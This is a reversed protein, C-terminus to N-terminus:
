EGGQPKAQIRYVIDNQLTAGDQSRLGKKITITYVTNPVWFDLGAPALTLQTPQAQYKAELKIKPNTEIEMTNLNLSKNFSFIIRTNPSYNKTGNPDEPPDVKTLVLDEPVFSSSAQPTPKLSPLVSPPISSQILSSTPRPSMQQIPPLTPPPNIGRPKLLLYVFGLLILVVIAILLVTKSM